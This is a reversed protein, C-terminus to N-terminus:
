VERVLVNEVAWASQTNFGNLNWYGFRLVKTSEIPSEAQKKPPRRKTRKPQQNAFPYDKRRCYCQFTLSIYVSFDYCNMLYTDSHVYSVYKIRNKSRQITRHAGKRMKEPFQIQSQLWFDIDM